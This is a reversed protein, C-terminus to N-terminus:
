VNGPALFRLPLIEVAKFISHGATIGCVCVCVCVCVCM